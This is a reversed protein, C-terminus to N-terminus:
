AGSTRSARILSPPLTILSLEDYVCHDGVMQDWIQTQKINGVMVDFFTLVVTTLVFLCLRLDALMVLTIVTICALALGLNRALEHAIVADSEWAAYIQVSLHPM